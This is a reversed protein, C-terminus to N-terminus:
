TPNIEYERLGASRKLPETISETMYVTLACFIFMKYFYAGAGVWLSYGNEHGLLKQAADLFSVYEFRNFKADPHLKMM